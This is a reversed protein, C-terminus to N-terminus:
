AARLSEVSVTVRASGSLLPTELVVRSTKNIIGLIKGKAYDDTGFKFEVNQGVKLGGLIEDATKTSHEMSRVISLATRNIRAFRRDNHRMFGWFASIEYRPLHAAEPGVFMYGPFMAVKKINWVRNRRNFRRLPVKPLYVSFGKEEFSTLALDERGPFVQAVLWDESTAECEAM